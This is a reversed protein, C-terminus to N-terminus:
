IPIVIYLHRPPLVNNHIDINSLKQDKSKNAVNKLFVIKPDELGGICESM